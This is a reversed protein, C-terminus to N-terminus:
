ASRQLRRRWSARAAWARRSCATWTRPLNRRGNRMSWGLGKCLSPTRSKSSNGLIQSPYIERITSVVM